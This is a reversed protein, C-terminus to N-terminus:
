RWLCNFLWLLASIGGNATQHCKTESQSDTNRTVTKGGNLISPKFKSMTVELLCCPM